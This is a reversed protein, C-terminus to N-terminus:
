NQPADEECFYDGLATRQREYYRVYTYPTTLFSPDDITVTLELYRPDSLLRYVETMHLKNDHPAAQDNLWTKDNFGTTDVVLEDGKWRALSEGLFTEPAPDTHKEGFEIERRNGVNVNQFLMFLGGRLSPLLEIRNGPMALARFPGSVRCNKAPDWRLDATKAQMAAASTLPLDNLTGRAKATGQIAENYPVLEYVGILRDIKQASTAAGAAFAHPSYLLSSALLMGAIGLLHVPMRRTSRVLM